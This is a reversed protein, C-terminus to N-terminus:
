VDLSIGSNNQRPAKALSGILAIMEAHAQTAPNRKVTQDVIGAGRMMVADLVGGFVREIGEIADM